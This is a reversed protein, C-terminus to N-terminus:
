NKWSTRPSQYSRHIAITSQLPSPNKDPDKPFLPSAMVGILSMKCLQRSWTTTFTNHHRRRLLNLPRHSPHPTKNNNNFHVMLLALWNGYPRPSIVKCSPLTSRPGHHELLARAHWSTLNLRIADRLRRRDLM